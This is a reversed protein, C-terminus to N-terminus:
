NGLELIPIDALSRVAADLLEETTQFETGQFVRKVYGLTM